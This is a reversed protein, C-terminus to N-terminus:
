KGQGGEGVVCSSVFVWLEVDAHNTAQAVSQIRCEGSYIKRLAASLEDKNFNGEVRVQERRFLIAEKM